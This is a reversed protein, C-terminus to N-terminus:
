IREIIVFGSGVSVGDSLAISLFVSTPSAFKILPTSEYEAAEIANNETSEMLLGPQATTGIRLSANANFAQDIVLRVSLITGVFSGILKPTADGYSFPVKIVNASEGQQVLISNFKVTVNTTEQKLVIPSETTIVQTASSNVIVSM